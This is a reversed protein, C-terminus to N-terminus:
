HVCPNPLCSGSGMDDVDAHLVDDDCRLEDMVRCMGTPKEPFMVCCRVAHENGCTSNRVARLIPRAEKRTLSGNARRAHLEDLMCRLYDRRAAWPEGAATEDCDCVSCGTADVLDYLATDPCADVGDAVGDGDVDGMAAVPAVLMLALALAARLRM